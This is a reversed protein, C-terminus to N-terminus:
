VVSKRDTIPTIGEPLYVPLGGDRFSVPKILCAMPKKGPEKKTLYFSLDESSIAASSCVDFPIYPQIIHGAFPLKGGAQLSSGLAPVIVCEDKTVYGDNNYDNWFVMDAPDQDAWEGYPAREFIRGHAGGFLKLLNAVTAMGAAPIWNEGKKMMLFFSSRRPWGLVAFYEHSDGSAESFFMSGHDFPTDGPTFALGGEPDPNYMVNGIEWKGTGPDLVMESYEAFAKTPDQTHILTGQGAYGCNGIFEKRFEGERMWVSIRRPTTGGETVWILGSADVAVSSPQFLGGREYTGQRPRGGFTGIRLLVEGDPTCKIIQQAPGCDAIYIKGDADMAIAAPCEAALLPTAAEEGTKLNLKYIRNGAIYYADTGDTAMAYANKKEDFTSSGLRFTEVADMDDNKLSYVRTCGGNEPDIARITHDSCRALLVNGCAALATVTPAKEMEFLEKLPYPMPLEKGERVFPVFHGDTVDMRLLEVGSASWDNPILFVYKDNAALADTGRIESWRKTYAREGATELLFTGFGGEAFRSCVVIGDGARALLHAITHDAGWSGRSDSTKWPPTGPNYFSSEYYGDIGNATIGALVYEGPKVLKGAEDLGDWLVEVIAQGDEEGVQYEAVPYGGAVNRIREGDKTNVTVTFTKADAPVKVRLAITGAPAEPEERYIRPEAVSDALLVLDGWNEVRTWFFSRMGGGPRVNDCYSHIPRDNGGAPGYHFDMGLRIVEGAKMSYEEDFLVKWPLRVEQIFGKGDEAIRYAMAVGDGLEMEGPVGTYFLRSADDGERKVLRAQTNESDLYVVDVVSKDGDYCWLTIWSPQNGALIRLQVSDSMWGRDKDQMPNFRSCMPYPDRWIFALYLNDEDWMAATKVSFIDKISSDAYSEILGSLDWDDLRADVRVEGKAPVAFFGENNTQKGIMNLATKKEKEM